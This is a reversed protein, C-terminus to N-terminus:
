AANEQRVDVIAQVLAAETFPKPLVVGDIHNPSLGTMFIAPATEGKERLKQLCRRGDMGPLDIDMLILDLDGAIASHAKLASAGDASEVVQFGLQELKRKVSIRIHENDETLLVLGGKSRITSKIPKERETQEASVTPLFIRVRTGVGRESEVVIRGCHDKVIGHAMSM